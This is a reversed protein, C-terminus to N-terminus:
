WWNELTHEDIKNWSEHRNPTDGYPIDNVLKLKIM